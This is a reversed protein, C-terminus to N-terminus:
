SHFIAGQAASSVQRAYRAMYGNKIRPAPKVWRALREQIETEPVMLEITKGPIDIRILDNEKIVAM